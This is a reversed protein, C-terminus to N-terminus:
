STDCDSAMLIGNWVRRRPLQMYSETCLNTRALSRAVCRTRICRQWLQWLKSSTSDRIGHPITVYDMWWSEPELRRCLDKWFRAEYIQLHVGRRVAWLVHGKLIVTYRPRPIYDHTCVYTNFLNRVDKSAAAICNSNSPAKGPRQSGNDM